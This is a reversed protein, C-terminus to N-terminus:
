SAEPAYGRPNPRLPGIGGIGPLHVQVDRDAIGLPDLRDRAQERGDAERTGETLQRAYPHLLDHMRRGGTGPAAEAPHAPSAALV